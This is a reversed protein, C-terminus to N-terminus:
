LKKAWFEDSWELRNNMSHNEINIAAEILLSRPVNQEIYNFLEREEFRIHGQLLEVFEMLNTANVQMKIKNIIARLESHQLEAKICLENKAPLLSFLFQEELKFHNELNSQYFFDVYDAIRKLEINSSLGTKIKWALLLGDHHERSLQTLEKSRKIPTPQEM